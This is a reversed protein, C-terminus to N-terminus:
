FWWGLSLISCWRFHHLPHGLVPGIERVKCWRADDYLRFGRWAVWRLGPVGVPGASRWRMGDWASKSTAAEM